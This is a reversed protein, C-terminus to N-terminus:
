NGEMIPGDKMLGDKMLGDKASGDKMLGDKASGDKMLGDKASGDELTELFQQLIKATAGFVLHEQYAYSRVTTALGDVLRTEHRLNAPDVLASVPVELVEAIEIASPSFGYPYPITGIYVRVGFNTRTVVDDLQGLITVDARSIGMEEETERLATDLFDRDDPDRAGGPFSIEGKHHEVLQSRKNLLVCYEGDKPYLLLMVAAPMLDPDTISYKVRGDLAQRVLDLTSGAM